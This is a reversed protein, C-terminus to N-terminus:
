ERDVAARSKSIMDHHLGDGDAEGNAVFPLDNSRLEPRTSDVSSM